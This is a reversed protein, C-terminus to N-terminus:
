LASFDGQSLSTTGGGTVTAWGKAVMDMGVELFNTGGNMTISCFYRYTGAPPLPTVAGTGTTVSANGAPDTAGTYISVNPAAGSSISNINSDTLYCQFNRSHLGAGTGVAFVFRHQLGKAVNSNGITLVSDGNVTITGRSAYLNGGSSSQIFGNAGCGIGANGTNVMTVTELAYQIAFYYDYNGNTLTANAATQCNNSDVSKLILSAQGATGGTGTVETGTTGAPNNYQAAVLVGNKFVLVSFSKGAHNVGQATLNVNITLTGSTPSTSAVPPKNVVPDFVVNTQSCHVAICAILVPLYKKM